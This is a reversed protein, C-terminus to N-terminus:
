SMPGIGPLHFLCMAARITPASYAYFRKMAWFAGPLSNVPVM